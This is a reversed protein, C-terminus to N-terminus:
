WWYISSKWYRAFCLPLCFGFNTKLEFECVNVTASM